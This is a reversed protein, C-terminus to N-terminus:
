EKVFKSTWRRKDANVQLLYIGSSLDAVELTPDNCNSFSQQQVLVGLSNFITATYSPEPCNFIIKDVAPNPFLQLPDTSNSSSIGIFDDFYLLDVCFYIENAASTRM